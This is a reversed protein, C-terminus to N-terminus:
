EQLIYEIESNDQPAVFVAKVWRGRDDFWQTMRLDRTYEYRTAAITGTVTKVTERGRQEVDVHALTGLQTNFLARQRTQAINWHTTPLTGAPMTQRLAYPRQPPPQDIPVPASPGEHEVNVGAGTDTARVLYLKGDDLTEATLSEFREGNWIEHCRHNYRFAIVGLVRVALDLSTAVYHRDGEHRFRMAHHGILQGNRWAAFVHNEAYPFPQAATALAPRGASLLAGLLFCRRSGSHKQWHRM